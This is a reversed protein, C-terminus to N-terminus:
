DPEVERRAADAGLSGALGGDLHQARGRGQRRVDALFQGALALGIIDIRGDIRQRIWLDAVRHGLRRELMQNAKLQGLFLKAVVRRTSKAAGRPWLLATM